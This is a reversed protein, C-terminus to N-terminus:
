RTSSWGVQSQYGIPNAALIKFDLEQKNCEFYSSATSFLKCFRDLEGRTAHVETERRALHHRYLGARNLQRKSLDTDHYNASNDSDIFHTHMLFCVFGGRELLLRLEKQRMELERTYCYHEYWSGLRNSKHHFDEFSGQFLIVGDYEDFRNSTDFPEFQLIFNRKRWTGNPATSLIREVGYAM